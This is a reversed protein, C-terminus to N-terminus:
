SAEKGQFIELKAELVAIKLRSEFEAERRESKFQQFIDEQTKKSEIHSEAQQNLQARLESIEVQQQEVFAQLRTIDRLHHEVNKKEAELAKKQSLIEAEKLEIEAQQEALQEKLQRAYESEEAKTEWFEDLTDLTEYTIGFEEATKLVTKAENSLCHVVLDEELIHSLTEISHLRHNQRNLMTNVSQPRSNMIKVLDVQRLGKNQCKGKLIQPWTPQEFKM